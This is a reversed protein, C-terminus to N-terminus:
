YVIKINDFYMDIEKGEDEATRIAGIFVKHWTAGFAATVDDTYYVYIKRWEGNTPFARVIPAQQLGRGPINSFVGITFMHNTKYHMELYIPGSGQPLVFNQVSEMEFLNEGERMRVYGSANNPEGPVQSDFVDDPHSNRTIRRLPTDSLNTNQFRLGVQEFDEIPDVNAFNLYEVKLVSDENENLYYDRKDNSIIIDERHTRFFPYQIRLANLGNQTVGAVVTFEVPGERDVTFNIEAPLEYTGIPREDITVWVTNINQAATGQENFDTSMEIKPIHLVYREPAKLNDTNCGLLLLISFLGIYGLYRM